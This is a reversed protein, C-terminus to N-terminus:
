ISLAFRAPIKLPRTTTTLDVAFPPASAKSSCSLKYVWQMLPISSPTALSSFMMLEEMERVM